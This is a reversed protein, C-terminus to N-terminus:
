MRAWLWCKEVSASLGCLAASRMLPLGFTTSALVYSSAMASYVFYASWVSPTIDSQRKGLSPSFSESAPRLSSRAMRSRLSYTGSMIWLLSLSFLAFASASRKWKMSLFELAMLM